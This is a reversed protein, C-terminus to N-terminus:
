IFRDRAPLVPKFQTKVLHIWRGQEWGTSTHVDRVSTGACHHLEATVRIPSGTESLFLLPLSHFFFILIFLVWAKQTTNWEPFGSRIRIGLTATCVTTSADSYLLCCCGVSPPWPLRGCSFDCRHPAWAARRGSAHEQQNKKEQKMWVEERGKLYSIDKSDNTPKPFIVCEFTPPNICVTERNITSATDTGKSARDKLCQKNTKREEAWSRLLKKIAEKAHERKM